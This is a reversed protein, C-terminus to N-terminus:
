RVITIKRTLSKTPTSLKVFYVGSALNEPQFTVQGPGKPMVKSKMVDAVKRGAVDYVQLSVTAAEDLEYGITTSGSFPNPFAGHLAFKPTLAPGADTLNGTRCTNVRFEACEKNPDPTGGFEGIIVTLQGFANYPQSGVGLWYPFSNTVAGTWNVELDYNQGNALTASVPIDHWRIGAPGTTITGTALLAGRATGTAAYVNAVLTGGPQFDAYFGINTLEQDHLATVYKGFATSFTSTASPPGLFPEVIDIPNLGPGNSYKIEFNPIQQGGALLVGALEEGDVQCLDVFTWPVAQIHLFRTANTGFDFGIDYQKGELLVANIPVTIVQQATSPVTAMGESVLSGRVGGAANYVYARLTSPASVFQVNVGLKSLSVTKQATIFAGHEPGITAAGNGSVVMNSQLEATNTSGRVQFHLLAFNIASGSREGDRIRIVGDNDYPRTMTNEDWWPWSDATQFAIDIDYEKCGQLTYSIPVFHVRNGDFKITTSGTALLAGRATGTAAYINATLTQGPVFDGEVGLSCVTFDKLATIYAGREENSEGIQNTITGNPPILDVVAANCGNEPQACLNWGIEDLLAWAMGPEHNAGTYVPEMLENPTLATSWHSTSSGPQVPNPGHMRTHGGVMGATLRMLGANN